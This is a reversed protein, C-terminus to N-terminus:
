DIHEKKGEFNIVELLWDEDVHGRAPFTLEVGGLWEHLLPRILEGVQQQKLEVVQAGGDCDARAAHQDAHGPRAVVRAHTRKAQTPRLVGKPTYHPLLPLQNANM